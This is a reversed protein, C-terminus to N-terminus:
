RHGLGPHHDLRAGLRRDRRGVEGGSARESLSDDAAPRRRRRNRGARVEPEDLPSILCGDYEHGGHVLFVCDGTAQRLDDPWDVMPPLCETAPLGLRIAATPMLRRREVIANSFHTTGIMVATVRAPDLRTEVCLIQLARIIGDGVDATTPTKVAGLVTRSDMLVADTNTGGVDIGIRM